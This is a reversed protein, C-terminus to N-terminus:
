LIFCLKRKGGCKKCGNRKKCRCTEKIKSIQNQKDRVSRVLQFFPEDCNVNAKCSTMFIPCNWRLALRRGEKDSVEWKDQDLDTKNAVLVVSPNETDKCRIIKERLIQVQEFSVSDDVAYVLVFGEGERIWSSQMSSFEAQGATDLIDLISTEGDVVVQTRYNDEITPDYEKAFQDDTVMRITLASKGVAGSGM